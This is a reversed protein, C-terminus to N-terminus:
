KIGVGIKDEDIEASTNDQLQFLIFVYIHVFFTGKMIYKGMRSFSCPYKIQVSYSRSWSMMTRLRVTIKFKSYGKFKSCQRSSKEHTSQLSQTSQLSANIAVIRIVWKSGNFDVCRQLRRMTAILAFGEFRQLRRAGSFNEWRKNDFTLLSFATKHTISRRTNYKSTM